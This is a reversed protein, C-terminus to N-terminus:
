ESVESAEPKEANEADVLEAAAIRDKNSEKFTDFDASTMRVASTIIKLREGAEAKGNYRISFTNIRQGRRGVRFLVSDLVDDAIETVVDIAVTKNENKIREKLDVALKDYVAKAKALQDQASLIETVKEVTPEGDPTENEVTEPAVNEAETDTQNKKDDKAM